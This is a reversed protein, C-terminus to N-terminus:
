TPWQTGKDTTDAHSAVPRDTVPAGAALQDTTAEPLPELLFGRGRITSVTLGLPQIRRRLRFMLTRLLPRADAVDPWLANMLEQKSVVETWAALLLGVAIEEKASLAVWSGLYRLLGFSGLEPVAEPAVSDEQDIVAQMPMDRTATVGDAACTVAVLV